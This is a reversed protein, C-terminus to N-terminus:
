PPIHHDTPGIIKTRERRLPPPQHHPTNSAAQQQFTRCPSTLLSCAGGPGAQRDKYTHPKAPTAFPDKANRDQFSTECATANLHFAFPSCPVVTAVSEHGDPPGDLPGSRALNGSVKSTLYQKDHLCDRMYVMDYLNYSLSTQGDTMGSNRSAM